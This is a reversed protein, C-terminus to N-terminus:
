DPGNNTVEGLRNREDVLYDGQHFVEATGPQHLNDLFNDIEDDLKLDTAGRLHM